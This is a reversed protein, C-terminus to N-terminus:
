CYRVGRGEDVLFKLQSTQKERVQTCTHTFLFHPNSVTACADVSTETFRLLTRYINIFVENPKNHLHKILKQFLVAVNFVM